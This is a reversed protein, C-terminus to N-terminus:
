KREWECLDHLEMIIEMAPKRAAMTGIVRKVEEAFQQRGLKIHVRAAENALTLNAFLEKGVKVRCRRPDLTRAMQLAADASAMDLAVIVRPGIPLSSQDTMTLTMPNAPLKLFPAM